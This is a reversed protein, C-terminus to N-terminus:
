KLGDWNIEVFDMQDLARILQSTLEIGLSTSLVFTILSAAASERDLSNIIRIVTELKLERKRSDTLLQVVHAITMPSIESTFAKPFTDVLLQLATTTQESPTGLPLEKANSLADLM